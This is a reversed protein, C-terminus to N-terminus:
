DSGQRSFLGSAGGTRQHGIQIREM